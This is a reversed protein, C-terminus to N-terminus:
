MEKNSCMVMWNSDKRCLDGILKRILAVVMGEGSLEKNSCM